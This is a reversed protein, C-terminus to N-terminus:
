KQLDFLTSILSTGILPAPTYLSDTQQFDWADEYLDDEGTYVPRESGLHSGQPRKM